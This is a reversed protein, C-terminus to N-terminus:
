PQRAAGKSIKKSPDNESLANREDRESWRPTQTARRQLRSFTCRRSGAAQTHSHFGPLRQPLSVAPRGDAIDREREQRPALERESNVILDDTRPQDRSAKLLIERASRAWATQHRAVWPAALRDGSRRRVRAAAEIRAGAVIWDHVHLTTPVNLRHNGAESHWDVGRPNPGPAGSRVAARIGASRYQM